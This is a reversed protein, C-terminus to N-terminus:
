TDVAVPKVFYCVALLKAAFHIPGVQYDLQFHYSGVSNAFMASWDEFDGPVPWGGSGVLM